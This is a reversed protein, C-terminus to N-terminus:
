HPPPSRLAGPPDDPAERPAGYRTRLEGLIGTAAATLPVALLMGLIGAVSAGATIALMVAAPHMQVTRSQVMPQLLYGEIMQVALVIGLVWLAIAFGRDALAVLVAIAGSLFAGLYPIYATVFVLAALGVAGPVDLVVLGLGILIADVLAVFTTGRMFGEVAEFARRAMAEVLDGTARPVLARLAGAARDSDRLFFFILVLSLAATALMGGVVSLGTLVGSAATGGFEKLLGEANKALDDLSTGAPGLHKAIDAAAQRLSAIIQDGTEILAAVVIYTAGGVVALVAVVTLAAAFSRRVKMRLLRRYLPGLLATGLIALLVPTVVTEFVVCLWIGVAAVGAALLLVVCWAAVRRAPEPLLPSSTQM